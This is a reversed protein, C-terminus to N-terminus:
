ILRNIKIQAFIRVYIIFIHQFDCFIFEKSDDRINNHYEIHYLM